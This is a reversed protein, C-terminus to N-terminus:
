TRGKNQDLLSRRAAEVAANLTNGYENVSRAGLTATILIVEGHPAEHVSLGKALKAKADDFADTNFKGSGTRSCTPFEKVGVKATLSIAVKATM